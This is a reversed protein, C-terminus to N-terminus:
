KYLLFFLLVDHSKKLHINFSFIWSFHQEYFTSSLIAAIRLKSTLMSVRQNVGPAGPRQEKWHTRWANAQKVWKRTKSESTRHISTRLLHWSWWLNDVKLKEMPLEQRMSQVHWGVKVDVLHSPSSPRTYKLWQSWRAKNALFTGGQRTKSLTRQWRIPCLQTNNADQRRETNYVGPPRPSAPM